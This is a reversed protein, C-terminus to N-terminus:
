GCPACRSAGVQLRGRRLDCEAERADAHGADLFGHPDAVAAGLLEDGGRDVAGDVEIRTALADVHGAEGLQELLGHLADDVVVREEDLIEGLVDRSADDVALLRQEGLHPDDRTVGVLPARGDRLERRLLHDRQDPDGGGRALRTRRTTPTSAVPIL